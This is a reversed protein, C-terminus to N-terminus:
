HQGIESGAGVQRTLGFERRLEAHAAQGHALRDFGKLGPAKDLDAPAAPRGNGISPVAKRETRM